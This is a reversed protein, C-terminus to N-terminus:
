FDDVVHDFVVFVVTLVVRVNENMVRDNQMFLVMLLICMLYNLQM